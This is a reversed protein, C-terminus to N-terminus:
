APDQATAQFIKANYGGITELNERLRRMFENYYLTANKTPNDYDTSNLAAHRGLSSFSGIETSHLPQKSLENDAPM